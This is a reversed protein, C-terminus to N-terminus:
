IPSPHAPTLCGCQLLPVAYRVHVENRDMCFFASLARLVYEGSVKGLISQHFSLHLHVAPILELLTMQPVPFRQGARTVHYVAHELANETPTKM